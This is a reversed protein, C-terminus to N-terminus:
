LKHSNAVVLLMLCIVAFVENSYRIDCIKVCKLSKVCSLMVYLAHVRSNMLFEFRAISQNCYSPHLLM